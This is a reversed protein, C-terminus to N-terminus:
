RGCGMLRRARAGPAYPSGGDNLGELGPVVMRVVPLGVTEKTLDVAIVQEIGIARLRRLLWDLDGAVTPANFTPVTSFSSSPPPMAEIAGVLQDRRRRRSSLEWADLPYDDRAGTIFTTRSQVAETLARLLAVERAPHCGCGYEADTFEDGKDAVLCCFSAVGADSTMDWIRVVIDAAALQGLLRLCEPDTISLPDIARRDDAAGSLRWLTLADCELVECLGHCMAELPHNGAALGVTGIQFCGSEPPLPLTVDASVLEFPVWVPEGRLLDCGEIWLFSPTSEFQGSVRALREPDAIQHERRMEEFSALKLPKTIHEAHWLEAAEMVGSAKAAALTLGKGQSVAVSRANPRIVMVVPIGIRDLGTVNAIRTIGMDALLPQVRALTDNPPCIRHTGVTYRKLAEDAGGRAGNTAFLGGDATM